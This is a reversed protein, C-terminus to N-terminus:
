TPHFLFPPHFNPYCGSPSALPNRWLTLSFRSRPLLPLWHLMSYSPFRYSCFELSPAPTWRLKSRELFMSLCSPLPLYNRWSNLFYCYSPLFTPCPLLVALLPYVRLGAVVTPSQLKVGHLFDLFCPSTRAVSNEWGLSPPIKPRKNQSGDSMPQPIAAELLKLERASGAQM